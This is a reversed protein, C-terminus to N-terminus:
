LKFIRMANGGRVAERQAPPLADVRALCGKMDGINHPYDSGYLLKDPGGVRLALELSEQQFVVSDYFIKRLYTSPRESIKERCAPMHDFCIDLRGAIYPLAGGGHAAILKLDPYRDLFGDFIMRSVALSTDFMFGVSAILNYKMVDLHKTAPPATPHILVPLGRRDIEKWVPAFRRDTLSVGDVNALQMVGVAGLEDCARKLEAVALKAHQWPLSCMFRIREPFKRQQAAMDNNILKSAELSQRPSGWFVNPSTLTVIAIDVGAQDMAKIRLEYDFMGPMLTMFPAGDKVIGTQGGLVKKLKYGGGHKKLLALYADNLMHTHVDIVKM